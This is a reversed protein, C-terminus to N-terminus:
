RKWNNIQTNTLHQLSTGPYTASIGTEWGSNWKELAANSHGSTYEIVSFKCYSWASTSEGITIVARDLNGSSGNMKGFRVSFNRDISSESDIWATCNTWAYGSYWYGAFHIDFSEGPAYDFVRIVGSMMNNIGAGALDPLKVILYGTQSGSGNYAAGSPAFIRATTNEDTGFSDGKVNGNVVLKESPDNSGIGVNGERTISLKESNSWPAKNTGYHIGLRDSLNSGENGTDYWTVLGWKDIINGSTQNYRGMGIATAVTSDDDYSLLDMLGDQGSFIVSNSSSAVSSSPHISGTAVHLKGEPSVLGVGLRQNMDFTAAFSGDTYINVEHGSGGDGARLQLNGTDTNSVISHYITGNNLADIEIKNNDTHADSSLRIVSGDPDNLHLTTLPVEVGIGVKGAFYGSNLFRLAM